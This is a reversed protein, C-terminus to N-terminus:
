LKEILRMQFQNASLYKLKVIEGQNNYEFSYASCDKLDSYHLTPSDEPIPNGNNGILWGFFFKEIRIIQNWENYYVLRHVPMPPLACTHCGPSNYEAVRNLSDYRIFIEDLEFINLIQNRKEKIPEKLNKPLDLYLRFHTNYFDLNLQKDTKITDLTVLTDKENNEYFTTKFYHVVEGEQGFASFFLFGSFIILITKM